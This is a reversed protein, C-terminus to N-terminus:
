TTGQVSRPMHVLLSPVPDMLYLRGHLWFSSLMREDKHVPLNFECLDDFRQVGSRQWASTVFSQVSATCVRRWFAYRKEVFILDIKLLAFWCDVPRDRVRTPFDRGLWRCTAIATPMRRVCGTGLFGEPVNRSANRPFGSVPSLDEWALLDLASRLAV